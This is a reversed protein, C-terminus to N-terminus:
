IKIEHEKADKSRTWSVNDRTPKAPFNANITAKDVSKTLISNSGLISGQDIIVSKSSSIIKAGRGIWCHDEIYINSPTDNIQKFNTLDVLAHKDGAEILIKKQYFAITGM